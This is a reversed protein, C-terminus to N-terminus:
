KKTEVAPLDREVKIAINNAFWISIRRQESNRYHNQFTYIYDWRDAHFVDQLVPSGVTNAIEDRSMGERILELRNKEILNGQQVPAQYPFNVCASLAFVTSTALLLTRLTPKM